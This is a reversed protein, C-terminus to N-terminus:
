WVQWVTFSVTAIMGVVRSISIMGVMGVHWVTYSIVHIIGVM